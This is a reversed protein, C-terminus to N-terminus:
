PAKPSEGTWEWHWPEFPYNVFGFRDANALLWRYAPSEALYLRNADASSDASFGPAHGLYLDMALGTRHPSCTARERGNCNNQTACRAADYAPSRYASFIRLLEPDAAIRPEEARATAVMRRYAAFAAPRLLIPKDGFGEDPRGATLDTEEAPAACVGQASLLVFPRRGQLVGKMRIFTFESLLGSPQFGQRAQWDALARAFGTSYPPCDVGIERAIMPAYIRWGVENRGFPAWYLGGLSSENVRAAEEWGPAECDRSLIRPPPPIEAAVQPPPPRPTPACGTVQLAVLALLAAAIM